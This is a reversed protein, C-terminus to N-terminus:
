TLFSAGGLATAFTIRAIVPFGSGSNWFAPSTSLPSPAIGFRSRPRHRAVDGGDVRGLVDVVVVQVVPVRRVRDVDVVDHGRAPSTTSISTVDTRGLPAAAHCAIARPRLPLPRTTLRSRM